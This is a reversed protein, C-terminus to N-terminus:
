ANFSFIGPKIHRVRIGLIKAEIFIHFIYTNPAPLGLSIIFYIM